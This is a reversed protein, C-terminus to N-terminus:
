SPSGSPQCPALEGLVWPLLRDSPLARTIDPIVIAVRDNPGVCERLPRLWDRACRGRGRCAREDALGAVSARHSSSVNAAPVTVELGDTGYELNIRMRQRNDRSTVAPRLEHSVTGCPGM